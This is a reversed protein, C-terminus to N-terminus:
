SRGSEAAVTQGRGDRDALVRRYAALTLDATRDWSFDTARRVGLVRLEAARAPDLVRLLAAALAEEDTPDFLEAADGAVEPISGAAAAAVPCGCAMAELLPLGFGEYLSPYVFAAAGAYLGALEEDTPLEACRVRDAIGAAAIREREGPSFASGAAVLEVEGPLDAAAFARVLRDFNKYHYRSGVYLLYPRGPTAAARAAAARDAWWAADAALPTVDVRDAPVGYRECLDDRASDSIALVRDAALVCRRKRARFADDGPADFLDPFREHIMDYVTVVSATRPSPAETYYTPHFLAARTRAMRRGWVWRGGAVAAGRFRGPTRAYLYSGGPFARRVRVGGGRLAELSGRVHPPALLTVGVGARGALRPLLANFYNSIGGRAQMAYVTGDVFVNPRVPELVPPPRTKIPGCPSTAAGSGVSARRGNCPGGGSLRDREAPDDLLRRMTAALADRDDCPLLVGADGVVEPLSSNDSTVVAAGCRMAELPPLGFGEYLSMYVFATAGSYLAPLDDDPLFGPTLVRDRGLDAVDALLEDFQWGKAGALVLYPDADTGASVDRFARLVHRLNKRPELTCLSLFYPADPPLGVTARVAALRDPDDCPRFRDDAALPTVRVRDEDLDPRFELLDRRTSESICLVWDEATLGEFGVRVNAQENWEFLHPLKLPILDYATLVRALHPRGASVPPLPFFPSHLM